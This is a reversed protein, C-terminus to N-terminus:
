VPLRRNEIISLAFDSTFGISGALIGGIFVVGWLSASYAFIIGLSYGALTLVVAMVAVAYLSFLWARWTGLPSKRMHELAAFIAERSKVITDGIYLALIVPFLPISVIAQFVVLVWDGKLSGHHLWPDFDDHM